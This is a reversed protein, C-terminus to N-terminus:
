NVYGIIFHQQRGVLELGLDKKDSKDTTNDLVLNVNTM